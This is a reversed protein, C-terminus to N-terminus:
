PLFSAQQQQQFAAVFSAGLRSKLAALTPLLLRLRRVRAAFPEIPQADPGPLLTRLRSLGAHLKGLWRWAQRPSRAGHATAATSAVTDTGNAVATAAAHASTVVTGALLAVLFAQLALADYHLRPVRESLYLRLTAGCGHRGHRNACFLRKGVQKLTGGAEKKYVFGHSVLHTGARCRHCSVRDPYADLNLTLQHLADLCDFFLAIAFDTSVFRGMSAIRSLSLM